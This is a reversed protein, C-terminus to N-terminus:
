FHRSQVHDRLPNGLSGCPVWDTHGRRRAQQGRRWEGAMASSGDKSRKIHATRKELSGSVFESCVSGEGRAGALILDQTVTSHGWISLCGDGTKWEMQASEASWM